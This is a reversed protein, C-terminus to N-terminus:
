KNHSFINAAVKRGQVLGADVSQPYHIGAYIRSLGAEEGIATFSPYTRPAYDLYDYTRDTITGTHGFLAQMIGAAAASLSAHASPYEPHPPTGILTNWGNHGMVDRIYTIPRVLNFHYKAAFCTILADNIASGTLAYAEAAKDLRSNAKRLAAQLISLWHGPSTQGPVDRWFIAMDKQDATLNQSADYVSKVMAFFPSSPAASYAVPAQPTTGTLSGRLVPKIAGWYPTIPASFLPATPVWLGQGAPVSYPANANSAGDTGAWSIIAAAVAKGYQVSHGVVEGAESTRFSATLANELSDIAANDAATALPFFAKNVAAMAANVNAPLYYTKAKDAAPLGTLGNWKDSWKYSSNLGPKISEFAAIGSYAFPRAFGQNTIGPTNRMLRLQLTIWKDLVESSHISASSKHPVDKNKTCAVFVTTLFLGMSLTKALRNRNMWISSKKM